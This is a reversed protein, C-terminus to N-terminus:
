AALLRLRVRAVAAASPAGLPERSTGAIGHRVERRLARGHWLGIHLHGGRQLDYWILQDFRLGLMMVLAALEESTWGPPVRLDVADGMLHRSTVAAQQTPDDGGINQNRSPTRHWSTAILPGVRDRLPDLISLALEIANVWHQRPANLDDSRFM